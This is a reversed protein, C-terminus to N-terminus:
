IFTIPGNGAKAYFSVLGGESITIDARLDERQMGLVRLGMECVMIEVGLSSCAEILEEFTAVNTDRFQKNLEYGSVGLNTRLNNWGDSVEDPKGLLAKIAGMTLFLTTRIDIAAAASAMAFAYHVRDAEESYIILSLKQPKESLGQRPSKHSFSNLEPM